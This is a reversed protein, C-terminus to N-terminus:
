RLYKRFFATIRSEFQQPMDKLFQAHGVSPEFWLDKPEGAAEFLRAGSEPSVVKDSGGQMVLVPRPAIRRIWKKADIEDVDGKLERETWFLIAPAFPFPPLGTFFRVSTEVTDRISSFACDSVLARIARNEAAYEISITGGMSVGFLGFRQKDVDPRTMAYRYFADLDAMEHLGFSIQEGDNDDHGRLSAVVVNFGHKHLINAVGLMMSRSDKYGHVVMVTAPGTGPIFWGKLHMGDKTKVSVDEFKLGRASPLESVTKRTEKPNTVLKHAEGRTRWVFLVSLVAVLLIALRAVFRRM